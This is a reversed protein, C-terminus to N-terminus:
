KLYKDINASHEESTRAYHMNGNADTIYFFYPTSPDANAVAQIASLSPNCIPDPPLGAIRYTNYESNIKLDEFTLDRKWWTKENTQYGLAYQVTADVQLPMGDELRKLLISAVEQRVKDSRAEREVLSALTVADHESLGLKKVRERMATTHRNEFTNKMISIVSGATAQRPFLYTDPFLYGEPALENFEIEPIDLEKSLIQAIEEKRLGEIVTVWVDLTGHTLEEAIQSTNMSPSLRFDGAQIKKDIDDQKVLLYFVLTNRILGEHKLNKAISNLGEGPKIIFIKTTKDNKNVPLTGEKYYLFSFGVIFLFLLILITFKNLRM